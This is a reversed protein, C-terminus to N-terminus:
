RWIRALAFDYADLSLRSYGAAVLRGDPQLALATFASDDDPRLHQAFTGADGFREDLVGRPDIRRVRARSFAEGAATGDGVLVGGDPEIFAVSGDGVDVATRVLGGDGLAADLRGDAGYRAIVLPGSFGSGHEPPGSTFGAVTISGDAGVTMGLMAGAVGSAIRTVVSGADGFHSDFAGNQLLRVLVFGVDNADGLAIGGALIKGDSQLVLQHLETARAVAFTRVGQFGFTPDSVGNPLVRVVAFESRAYFWTGAVVVAGDPQM